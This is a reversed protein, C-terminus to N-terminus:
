KAEPAALYREVAARVRSRARHLLVRQNTDTIDAINCVEASSLGEVDRLVLVERQAPPLLAIAAEIVSQTERQLLAHEPTHWRAPESAWHHPWRPHDAALFRAPDVAPGEGADLLAVTRREARGRSRALNIVIGLVWTRLTSRREFRDLSRIVTLWADQVVEEAVARSPVYALAVRLMAGSWQTVLDSFATESGALLAGILVDDETQTTM